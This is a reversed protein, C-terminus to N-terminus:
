AEATTVPQMQFIKGFAQRLATNVEETSVKIGLDALSTVGQERIGCPVIGDYHSLNPHVNLSIGHFTVSRRVRIGLAAIKRDGYQTAIWVGIRGVRREGVVDFHGLTAIIWQELDHVFKKVDNSRNRLDIMVYAISQGPGHYTYQGGRGTKFVPFRPNLLDTENASTGATYLPPHELVWILQSSLGTSINAAELEMREIADQYAIPRTSQEWRIQDATLM